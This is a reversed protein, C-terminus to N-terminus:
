GLRQKVMKAFAVIPVLTLVSILALLVLTTQETHLNALIEYAATNNAHPAVAITGAAADGAVAFGGSQATSVGLASLWAFTHWGIVACGLALGGLAFTGLSIVGLSINGIALVGVAAVGVSVPAVALGGWAFILGYARDGGAFWGFVPKDGVEPHALRVHVLPVGLLTLRSRYIGAASGAQDRKAAYLEPHRLREATRFERMERMARIMGAFVMAGSAVAVGQAVWIWFAQQAPWSLAALKVGYLVGLLAFIVGIAGLTVRVVAKKEAPSRARDLGARMGLFASFLGSFSALMTAAVTTKALAGGKAATAASSSAAAAVTAAKAPTALNPLAALVTLTFIKSPASRALAGEVFSLMREQLLKRGRSLRQKVADESLELAVAVHEISQHERYFLVLPERYTEPIRELASWLLEQEEARVAQDAVAEDASEVLEEIEDLPAAGHTPQRANSRHLRSVKRRLITCLWPRLKEPERLQPLQNWAEVFADQALEESLSLRGTASYALSCLLRQYREVIKAFAEPDGALTAAVLHEDPIFPFATSTDTPPMPITAEAM